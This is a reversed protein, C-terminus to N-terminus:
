RTSPGADRVGSSPPGAWAWGATTAWGASSGPTPPSPIATREGEEVLGAFYSRLHDQLAQQEDTLALHM